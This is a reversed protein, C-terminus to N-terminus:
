DLIKPDANIMRAESIDITIILPEEIKWGLITVNSPDLDIYNLDIEIRVNLFEKIVVINLWGQIM